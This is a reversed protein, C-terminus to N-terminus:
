ITKVYDSLIQKVGPFELLKYLAKRWVYVLTTKSRHELLEMEWWPLSDIYKYELVIRGSDNLELFDLIENLRVYEKKVDEIKEKIRIDIDDLQLSLAASGEDTLGKAKPLGTLKKPKLPAQFENLIHIRREELIKKRHKCRNYSSLYEDLLKADATLRIKHKEM